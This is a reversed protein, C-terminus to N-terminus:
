PSPVSISSSCTRPAPGGPSSGGSGTRIWRASRTSCRSTRRIAVCITSIRRGAPRRVLQWRFTRDVLPQGTTGRVQLQVQAGALGRDALPGGVARVVVERQDVLRRDIVVRDDATTRWSGEMLPGAALKLTLRYSIGRFGGAAVSFLRTVLPTAASLTVTEVATRVGAAEDVYQVQLLAVSIDPWPLDVFFNVQLKEPLPDPLSLWPEVAAKWDTAVDGGSELPRHYAARWHYGPTGTDSTDEVPRLPRRRQGLRLDAPAPTTPPGAHRGTSRRHGTTAPASDRRVALARHGRPPSRCRHPATPTRRTWGPTLEVSVQPFAQFSFMPATTVTVDGVLYADRPDVLLDAVNRRRWPSIPQGDPRLPSAPDFDAVVRYAYPSNWIEASAAEDLLNM